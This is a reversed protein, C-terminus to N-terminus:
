APAQEKTKVQKHDQTMKLDDVLYLRKDDDQSRKGEQSSTVKPGAHEYKVQDQFGENGDKYSVEFGYPGVLTSNSTSMLLIEMKMTFVYTDSQHKLTFFDISILTIETLKSVLTKEVKLPQPPNHMADSPGHHSDEVGSLM